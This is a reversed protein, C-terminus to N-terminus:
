TIIQWIKYIRKIFKRKYDNNLKSVFYSNEFSLVVKLFKNFNLWNLRNKKKIIETLLEHFFANYEEPTNYYDNNNGSKAVYSDKYNISDLYHVFEHVFVNDDIIWFKFRNKLMYVYHEISIPKMQPRDEPFLSRNVYVEDFVLFIIRNGNKNFGAKMKNKSSFQECFVLDLNYKKDIQSLNFKIGNLFKKGGEKTKLFDLETLKEFKVQNRLIANFIKMQVRRAEKDKQIDSKADELLTFISEKIIKKIEQM